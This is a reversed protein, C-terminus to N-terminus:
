RNVGESVAYLVLEGAYFRHCRLFLHYEPCLEKIYKPITILDERKHYVCIALIPKNRKITAEAGKLANLESGEIDMKIFSVKTNIPIMSDIKDVEISIGTNENCVTGCTDEFFRLEERQHWAGYELHVIKGRDTNTSIVKKLEDIVRCDPELAYYTDFSDVRNCFDNITDGTFAGCDIFVERNTLSFLEDLFYQNNQYYQSWYAALPFKKIKTHGEVFSDMILKSKEDFLLSRAEDFKDKNVSYYEMTLERSVMREFYDDVCCIKDANAENELFFGYRDLIYIKLINGDESLNRLLKFNGFHNFGVLISINKNDCYEFVQMDRYTNVTNYGKSVLIGKVKINYKNAIEIWRDTYEGVGYIFLNDWKRMEIIDNPIREDNNISM